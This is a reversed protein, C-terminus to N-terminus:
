AEDLEKFQRELESDAPRGSPRTASGEGAANRRTQKPKPQAAPARSAEIVPWLYAAAQRRIFDPTLTSLPLQGFDNVFSARFTERVKQDGFNAFQEEQALTDLTVDFTSRAEAFAQEKDRNKYGLVANELDALRRDASDFRYLAQCFSAPWTEALVGVEEGFVKKEIAAAVVPAYFREIDEPTPGQPREVPTTPSQERAGRVQELLDTYKGQFHSAQNRWTESDQLFKQWESRKRSIGAVELPPDDEQPEAKATPGTTEPRKPEAEELAVETEPQVEEEPEAALEDLDSFDQEQQENTTM